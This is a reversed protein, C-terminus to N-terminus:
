IAMERICFKHSAAGAEGSEPTGAERFKLFPNDSTKKRSASISGVGFYGIL